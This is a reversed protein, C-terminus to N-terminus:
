TKMSIALKSHMNIYSTIASIMDDCNGKFYENGYEKMFKFNNKFKEILTKEISDCDRCRIFLLIVYGKPYSKFRMFNTQKTKGIKYVNMNKLMFEREYLLYIYDYIQVGNEDVKRHLLYADYNINNNNAKYKCRDDKIHRSKSQQHKFTKWCKPCTLSGLGICTSEHKLLFKMCKYDKSCTRCTYTKKELTDEPNELTDEPDEPDELTDEPEELTDESKELLEKLKDSHMSNCHRTMNGKKDTSYNCWECNCILM